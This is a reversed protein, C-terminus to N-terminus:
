YLEASVDTNVAILTTPATGGAVLTYDMQAGLGRVSFGGPNEFTATLDGRTLVIRDPFNVATATRSTFGLRITNVDVAGIFNITLNTGDKTYAADSITGGRGAVYGRVIGSAASPTQANFSFTHLPTPAPPTTGTKVIIEASKEVYVGSERRFINGTKSVWRGAQKLFVPIGVGDDFILTISRDRLAAM